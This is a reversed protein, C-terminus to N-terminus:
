AARFLLLCRALAISSRRPALRLGLGSRRTVATLEVVVDVGEPGFADLLGSILARRSLRWIVFIRLDGSEEIDEFVESTEVGRGTDRRLESGPWRPVM